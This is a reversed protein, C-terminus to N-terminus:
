LPLKEKRKAFENELIQAFSDAANRVLTHQYLRLMEKALAEYKDANKFESKYDYYEVKDAQERIFFNFDAMMHSVVKQAADFVAERYKPLFLEPIEILGKGLADQQLIRGVLGLIIFKTLQYSRILPDDVKPM